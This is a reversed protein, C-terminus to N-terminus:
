ASADAGELSTRLEDYVQGFAPARQTLPQDEIVELRSVLADLDISASDLSVSDLSASGLAATSDPTSPSDTM